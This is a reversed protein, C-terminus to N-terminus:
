QMNSEIDNFYDSDQFEKSLTAEYAYSMNPDIGAQFM